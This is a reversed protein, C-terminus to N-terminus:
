HCSSIMKYLRPVQELIVTPNSRYAFTYGVGGYEFAAIIPKAVKKQSILNLLWALLDWDEEDLAFHDVLYGCYSQIGTIHLEQLREVPLSLIYDKVEIHLNIATIRAHALDLLLKTGTQNIVASIHKANVAAVMHPHYPMYPFHEVVINAHGFEAALLGIELEWLQMMKLADQASAPDTAASTVLHCNVHATQTLELIERIRMLNLKQVRGLGVLIDFHVHVPKIHLAHQYLCDWDPCKIRDVAVKGTSLYDELPISYNVAFEM